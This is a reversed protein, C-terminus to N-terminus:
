VYKRKRNKDNRLFLDLRQNKAKIGNKPQSPRITQMFTRALDKGPQNTSMNTMLSLWSGIQLEISPTNRSALRYRGRVQIDRNNALRNQGITDRRVRKVIVVQGITVAMFCLLLKM